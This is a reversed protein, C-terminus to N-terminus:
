AIRVSGTNGDAARLLLELYKRPDILGTFARAMADSANPTKRKLDIILSEVKSRVGSGGFRYVLALHRATSDDAVDGDLQKKCWALREKAMDERSLVEEVLGAKKMTFKRVFGDAFFLTVIGGAKLALLMESGDEHAVRGNKVLARAAFKVGPKPTVGRPLAVNALVLTEANNTAEVLTMMTRGDGAKFSKLEANLARGDKVEAGGERDVPIFFKRNSFCLAQRQGAVDNTIALGKEIGSYNLTASTM